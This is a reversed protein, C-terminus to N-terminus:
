SLSLQSNMTPVRSSTPKGRGRTLRIMYQRLKQKIYITQFLLDSFLEEGRTTDVLPVGELRIDAHEVYLFKGLMDIAQSM